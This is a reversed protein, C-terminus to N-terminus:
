DRTLAFIGPGTSSGNRLAAAGLDKDFWRSQNLAGFGLKQWDGPELDRFDVGTAGPLTVRPWTATLNGPNRLVFAGTTFPSMPRRLSGQGVVIDPRGDLDFDAVEADTGTGDNAPLRASLDVFSPGVKRLLKDQRPSGYTIIGSITVSTNLWNAFYLDLNGDGDFDVVVVDASEDNTPPIPNSGPAGNLGPADFVGNGRNVLVYDQGTGYTTASAAPGDIAAVVVDQDGDNDFDFFEADETDDLLVPLNTTTVDSFVTFAPVGNGPRPMDNRFLRNQQGQAPNFSACALYIDLDGDGDVDATELDTPDTGTPGIGKSIRAHDIPVFGLWTNGAGLGANLWIQLYAPSGAFCVALDLFGDRNLDALEASTAGGPSSSGISPLQTVITPGTFTTGSAIWMQVDDIGVTQRVGIVDLDGDGDVDGQEVDDWDLNESPPLAATATFTPTPNTTAQAARVQSNTLVVPANNPLFVLAQLEIALLAAAAGTPVALGPALVLDQFGSAPITGVPAGLPDLFGNFLTAGQVGAVGVAGPMLQQADILSPLFGTPFAAGWQAMVLYTSGPPATVRAVPVGGSATLAGEVLERLVLGVERSNRNVPQGQAAVAATLALLSITTHIRNRCRVSM